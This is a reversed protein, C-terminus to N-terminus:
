LAFCRNAIGSLVNENENRGESVSGRGELERIRRETAKAVMVIIKVGYQDL